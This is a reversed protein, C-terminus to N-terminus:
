RLRQTSHEMPYPPSSPVFVTLCVIYVICGSCGLSPQAVITHVLGCRRTQAAAEAFRPRGARAGRVLRAHRVRAGLPSAQLWAARRWGARACRVLRGHRVRPCLPSAQLWGQQPPFQLCPDVSSSSSSFLLLLRVSLLSRRSSQRVGRGMVLAVDACRQGASLTVVTREM